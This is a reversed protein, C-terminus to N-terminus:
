IVILPSLLWLVQYSDIFPQLLTQLFTLVESGSDLVTVEQQSIQVAGCKKLLFCAEEFDQTLFVYYWHMSILGCAGEYGLIRKQNTPLLATAVNLVWCEIALVEELPKIRKIIETRLCRSSSSSITVESSKGPIFIFENSFVDQLFCFFAFLKDTFLFSM